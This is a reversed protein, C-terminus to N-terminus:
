QCPKYSAHYTSPPTDILYSAGNQLLYFSINWDTCRQSGDVSDAPDQHSVFSTMAVTHGAPDSGVGTLVEATDTTTRYGQRFQSASIQNAPTLLASYANYDRSNIADFYQGLFAAVQQASPDQGAAPAIAVTGATPSPQPSPSPSSSFSPQTPSPAARTSAVSRAVTGHAAKAPNLHRVLLYAGSAVGGLVVIAVVALVPGAPLRRRKARVVSDAPPTVPSALTPPQDPDAARM